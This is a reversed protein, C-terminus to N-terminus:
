KQIFLIFTKTLKKRQMTFQKTTCLYLLYFLIYVDLARVTRDFHTHTHTRASLHACQVSCLLVVYVIQANFCVCLEDLYSCDYWFLNYHSHTKMKSKRMQKNKRRWKQERHQTSSYKNRRTDCAFFQTLMHTHPASLGVFTRNNVCIM